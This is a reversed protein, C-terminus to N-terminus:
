MNRCSSWIMWSSLVLTVKSSRIVARSISCRNMAFRLNVEQLNLRVPDNERYLLGLAKLLTITNKKEGGTWIAEEGLEKWVRAKLLKEWAACFHVLFAEVRNPTTPRNFLEVALQFELRSQQVLFAEETVLEHLECSTRASRHSARALTKLSVTWITSPTNM